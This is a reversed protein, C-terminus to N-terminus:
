VDASRRSNTVAPATDDGGGPGEFDQGILWGIMEAQSDFVEHRSPGSVIWKGFGDARCLYNEGGALVITEDEIPRVLSVTNISREIM